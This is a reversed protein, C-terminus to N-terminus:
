NVFDKLLHAREFAIHRRMGEFFGRLMYGVAEVNVPDDSGLKLLTETLEEAYGEDELHEYRLRSLTEGQSDAGNRQQVRPFLVTEEYRHLAQIMPMLAKAAYICKQKNVNAPLSDAIEELEDCLALQEAHASALWAVMEEDPVFAARAVLIPRQNEPRENM